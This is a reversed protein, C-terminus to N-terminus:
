MRAPFLFFCLLDVWMSVPTLILGYNMLQFLLNRQLHTLSPVYVM